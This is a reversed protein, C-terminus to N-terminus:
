GLGHACFFWRDCQHNVVLHLDAAQEPDREFRVAVLHELGRGSLVTQEFGRLAPRFDDHEVEAQRIEVAHRDQFPQAFPAACGHQHQGHAVAVVVFDGRQVVARVVIHRFREASAFQKRPQAHRLAM